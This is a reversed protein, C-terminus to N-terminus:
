RSLNGKDVGLLVALKAQNLSILNGYEAIKCIALIVKVEAFGIKTKLILDSIAEYFFLVFGQNTEAKPQSVYINLEKDKTASIAEAIEKFKETAMLAEMEQNM